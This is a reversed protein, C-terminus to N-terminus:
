SGTKCARSDRLLRCHVFAAAKERRFPRTAEERGGRAVTIVLRRWIRSTFGGLHIPRIKLGRGRVQGSIAVPGEQVVARSLMASAISVAVGTAGAAISNYGQGFPRSGELSITPGVQGHGIASETTMGRVRNQPVDSEAYPSRGRGSFIKFIKLRQFLNNKEMTIKGNKSEAGVGNCVRGKEEMTTDYAALVGVNTPSSLVNRMRVETLPIHGRLVGEAFRIGVGSTHVGGDMIVGSPGTFAPGGKATSTARSLAFVASIPSFYTIAPGRRERLRTGELPGDAIVESVNQDTTRGDSGLM